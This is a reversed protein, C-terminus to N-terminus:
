QGGRAAFNQRMLAAIQNENERNLQELRQIVLEQRKAPHNQSLKAKGEMRTIGIRFGQVGKSLGALYAADVDALKYPSDSAEYKVVLDQMASLTEETDHVMQVRGYVHVAVYNWTPVSTGTEYWSPSIYCHPGQFIVLAEQGELDTWQPNPRAFHGLLCGNERDLTLPLHTAFPRGQHQSVLTAFGNQEMIDYMLRVDQIEFHAPVYM